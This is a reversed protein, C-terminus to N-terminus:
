YLIKAEDLKRFSNTLGREIEQVLSDVATSLQRLGTESAGESCFVKRMKNPVDLSERYTKDYLIYWLYTQCNKVLRLEQGSRLTLWDDFMNYAIGAIDYSTIEIQDDSDYKVSKLFRIV